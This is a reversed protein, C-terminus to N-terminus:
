KWGSDMLEKQMNLLRELATEFEGAFHDSLGPDVPLTLSRAGELTAHRYAEFLTAGAPGMLRFQHAYLRCVMIELAWLRAEAKIEDENVIATEKFVFVWWRRM